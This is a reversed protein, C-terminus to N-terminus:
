PQKLFDTQINHSKISGPNDAPDNLLRLGFVWYIKLTLYSLPNPNSFSADCVMIVFSISPAAKKPTLIM